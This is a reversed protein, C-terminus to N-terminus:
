WVLSKYIWGRDGDAHEIHLWNHRQEIVKFPVGDGVTFAVPYRTGPGSRVNCKSRASIVTTMNGLLSKHIYGTDGQYDQFRYWNGTKEIIEIPHYQEIQWLVDYDTGPGSRINAVPKIVTLREAMAAGAHCLILLVLLFLYRKKSM